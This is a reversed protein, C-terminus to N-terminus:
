KIPNDSEKSQIYVPPCKECECQSKCCAKIILCQKLPISSFSETSKVAQKLQGKFVTFVYKIKVKLMTTQSMKKFM